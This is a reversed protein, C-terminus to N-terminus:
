FCVWLPTKVKLNLHRLVTTKTTLELRSAECVSSYRKGTKVSMVSIKTKNAESLKLKTSLAMTSKGRIWGQQLYSDLESLTVSKLKKDIPNNIWCMGKTSGQLDGSLYRPDDSPVRFRDGESDRVLIRGKNSDSNRRKSEDSFSLGERASVWLGSLINPHDKPKNGLYSGTSKDKVPITNRQREAIKPQVTGKLMSCIDGSLVKPDDKSVLGLPEGTKADKAPFKNAYGMKSTAYSENLWRSNNPMDLRSIVREEWTSCLSPNSFLKRVQIVDPEGNLARFRKVYKSSTFYTVWLESPTCGKATRRGYYWKDLKSWGILYTYCNEM